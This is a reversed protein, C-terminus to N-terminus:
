IIILNLLLLDLIEDSVNIVYTSKIIWPMTNIGADTKDCGFTHVEGIVRAPRSDAVCERPHASVKDGSVAILDIALPPDIQSYISRSNQRARVQEFSSLVVWSM